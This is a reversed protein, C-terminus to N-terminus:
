VNILYGQLSHSPEYTFCFNSTLGSLKCSTCIRTTPDQILISLKAEDVGKSFYRPHYNLSCQSSSDIPHKGHAM